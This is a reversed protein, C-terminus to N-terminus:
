KQVEDKWYGCDCGCNHITPRPATGRRRSSRSSVFTGGRAVYASRCQDTDVLVFAVPTFSQRIRGVISSPHHKLQMSCPNPALISGSRILATHDTTRESDHM